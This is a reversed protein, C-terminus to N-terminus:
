RQGYTGQLSPIIKLKGDMLSLYQSYALSVASTKLTGHMLDDYFATVAIGAKLSNLYVDFSNVSTRFSGGLMPWQNRHTFQNRINGNSGAFSPNLYILSQNTSFFVPDQAYSVFLVPVLLCFLYFKKM